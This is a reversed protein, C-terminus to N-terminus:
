ALIVTVSGSSLTIASFYDNGKPTILVGSKVATAPTTIYDAKVDTATVGNIEIRAIVTDENMFFGNANVVLEDTDNVVITGNSASMLGTHIAKM